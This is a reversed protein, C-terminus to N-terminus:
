PGGRDDDRLLEKIRDIMAPIVRERRILEGALMRTVRELLQSRDQEWRRVAEFAAPVTVLHRFLDGIDLCFAIGSAEHIFGLQPIAGVVAVAV